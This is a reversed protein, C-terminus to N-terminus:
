SVHISAINRLKIETQSDTKTINLKVLLALHAWSYIDYSVLDGLSYFILSKRKVSDLDVYNYWEFPQPNHLHSAVIVDILCERCLRRM